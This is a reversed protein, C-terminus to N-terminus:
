ADIQRSLEVPMEDRSNMVEILIRASDAWEFRKIESRIQEAEFHRTRVAKMAGSLSENTYPSFLKGSNHTIVDILAGRAPAVVPKGFSLALVAAGSTLIERYPLVVCDSAAM